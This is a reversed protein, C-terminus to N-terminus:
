EPVEPGTHLSFSTDGANYVTPIVDEEFDLDETAPRPAEGQMQNLRDADLQWYDWDDIPSDPGGIYEEVRANHTEM